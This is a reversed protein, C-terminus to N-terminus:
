MKESLYGSLDDYIKKCSGSPQWEFIHGASNQLVLIGDIALNEIVYMDSPFSPSRMREALTIDVVNIRPSVNLGTLEVGKASIAGFEDLYEKYDDSFTVKLQNQAADIDDTSAKKMSRMGSLKNIITSINM